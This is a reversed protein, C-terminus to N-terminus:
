YIFIENKRRSFLKVLEHKLEPNGFYYIFIRSCSNISVLISIFDAAITYFRSSNGDEDRLLSTSPYINELINIFFSLMNCTLYTSVIFIITRTQYRLKNREEKNINNTCEKRLLAAIKPLQTFETHRWHKHNLKRKMLTIIMINLSTLLVFPAIIHLLTFVYFNFQSFLQYKSLLPIFAFNELVQCHALFQITYEFHTGIRILFACILVILVIRKRSDNMVLYQAWSFNGVVGFREITGLLVIYTSAFQVQRALGYLILAYDHWLEHLYGNKHYIALADLSMLPIYILCILFDLISLCFLYLFPSNRKESTAFIRMLIINCIIGLVAIPTGFYIVIDYRIWDYSESPQCEVVNTGNSTSNFLASGHEESSEM